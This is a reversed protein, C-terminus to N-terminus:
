CMHNTTSFLLLVWRNIRHFSLEPQCNRKSATKWFLISKLMKINVKRKYFKICITELILLCVCYFVTKFFSIIENNYSTYKQPYKGNRSINIRAPVKGPLLKQASSAPVDLIFNHWLSFYKVVKVYILTLKMFSYAFCSTSQFNTQQTSKLCYM